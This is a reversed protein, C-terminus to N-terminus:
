NLYNLCIERQLCSNLKIARDAIPDPAGNELQACSPPRRGGAAARAPPLMGAGRGRPCRGGVGELAPPPQPPTGCGAGCRGARQRRQAPIARLLQPSALPLPALPKPLPQRRRPPNGEFFGRLCGRSFLQYALLSAHADKGERQALRPSLFAAQLTRHRRPAPTLLASERM